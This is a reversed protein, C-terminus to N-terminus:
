AYNNRELLKADNANCHVYLPFHPLTRGVEFVDRLRDITSSGPGISFVLIDAICSMVNCDHDDLVKEPSLNLM